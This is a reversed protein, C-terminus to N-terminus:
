DFLFSVEISRDSEAGARDVCSVSYYYREGARVSGDRYDTVQAPVIEKSLTMPSDKEGRRYIRYGAVQTQQTMDWYLRLGAGERAVRVGGPPLPAPEFAYVRVDHSWAGDAGESNISRIRYQYATGRLATTDIYEGIDRGLPAATIKGWTLSDGDVARYVDYGSVMNDDLGTWFLRTGADDFYGFFSRPAETAEPKQPSAAAPLSYNSSVGTYNIAQVLYWYQGRASLYASTDLYETTDKGILPSVQSLEGNYGDARFVYYGRVDSETSVEWAVRIGAQRSEVQVGQPPLPPLYNEFLSLSRPSRESENGARDVASVRYFFRDSLTTSKDEYYGTDAPLLVSNIQVYNSDADLSRLLNYGRIDDAAVRDWTVTIGLDSPNAFVNQPIPPAVVDAVQWVLQPTRPSENGAYDVSVVAYYYSRGVRATTDIFSGKDGAGSTDPLFALPSHNLCLYTGISDPCRYVSYTMAGSDAPNAQWDIEVGKNNSKGSVKSPGVLVLPPTGFTASQPESPASESGDSKVQTARYEYVKGREVNNDWLLLGIAKRFHKSLLSLALVSSDNQVLRQWLEQQSSLGAFKEFGEISGGMIQELEALTGPRSIPATSIRVFGSDGTVRRYVHYGIWGGNAAASGPHLTPGGIILLMGNPGSLPVLVFSPEAQAQGFVTAGCSLLVLILLLGVAPQSLRINYLFKM